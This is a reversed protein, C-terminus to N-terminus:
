REDVQLLADRRGMRQPRDLAQSVLRERIERRHEVAHVSLVTTWRDRGLPQQLRGQQDCEVRRPRLSREALLQLVVQQEAPEQVHVRDLRAEVRGDEGLIALTEQLVFDPLLEEVLHNAPRVRPPQEGVLVEGQVARQDLRGGTQLAELGLIPLWKGRIAIWAVRRDVEV